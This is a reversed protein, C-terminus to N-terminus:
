FFDSARPRTLLSRKAGRGGEAKSASASGNAAAEARGNMFTQLQAKRGAGARTLLREPASAPGGILGEKKLAPGKPKATPPTRVDAPKPPQGIVNVLNRKLSFRVSKKGTGPSRAGGDGGGGTVAAVAAALLQQEAVPVDHLPQQGLHPEGDQQAEPGDGLQSRKKKKKKSSGSPLPGGPPPTAALPSVAAAQAEAEAQRRKKGKKGGPPPAAADAQQQRGDAAHHQPALEADMPAAQQLQQQQQTQQAQQQKRAQKRASKAAKAKELAQDM